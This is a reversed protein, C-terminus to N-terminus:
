HKQAKVITRNGRTERSFISPLRSFLPKGKIKGENDKPTQHHVLIDRKKIM